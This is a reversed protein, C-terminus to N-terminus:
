RYVQRMPRALGIMLPGLLGWGPALAFAVAALIVLAAYFMLYRWGWRPGVVPLLLAPLMKTLTAGALALASLLRSRRDLMALGPKAGVAILAWLAAIMLCIMLADVVHAGHAFEVIVLPNWLYILVRTRPLGLRRLLDMVLVGTLLDLFVATVQFALANDPAIRYVAAFLGQAAPLYPSAMWNNNVLSRQPSDHVDLLPSNVPLAYPSVGVNALRGDWVFRWVDDSLAPTTFLLTLRFALGLGWILVLTKQREPERLSWWTALGYCVFTAAYLGLFPVTQQRLNGLFVMSAFCLEM